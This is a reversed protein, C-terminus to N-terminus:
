KYFKLIETKCKSALQARAQGRFSGRHSACDRFDRGCAVFVYDERAERNHTPDFGRWESDLLVEVWAHMAGEGKIYGAVYRAPIKAARCLAIMLHAHDQCVGKKQQLSQSAPTKLQTAGPSYEVERYAFACIQEAIRLPTIHQARLCEAIEEIEPTLDCLASPLLFAGMGTPPLGVERAVSTSEHETELTMEFRFERAIKHHRLFLVRSGFDDTREECEDPAPHCQWQLAVIRQGGRVEPPMVRLERRCDHAPASYEVRLRRETHCRIV